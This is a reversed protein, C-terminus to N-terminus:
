YKWKISSRVKVGSVGGKKVGNTSWQYTNYKYQMAVKWILIKYVYVHSWVQLIIIFYGQQLEVVRCYLIDLIITLILKMNVVKFHQKCTYTLLETNINWYNIQSLHLVRFASQKYSYQLKSVKLVNQLWYKCYTSKSIYLKLIEEKM